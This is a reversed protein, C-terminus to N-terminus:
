TVGVGVAPGNVAAIVPKLSSFIRLAVQGGGDRAAEDSLDPAGDPGARPTPWDGGAAPDFTAGGASLDAGACFARGADAADARDFTEILERQMVLTFANLREPRNLTITLINDSVEYLITEYAM